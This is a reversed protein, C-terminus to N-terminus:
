YPNTAKMRAHAAGSRSGRRRSPEEPRQTSREPQALATTPAAATSGAPSPPAAASPERGIVSHM